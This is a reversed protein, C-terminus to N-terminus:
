SILGRTRETISSEFIEDKRIRLKELFDWISNDEVPWSGEAFLDFDLVFAITGPVVAPILAQNIILAGGLDPQPIQLQMLAGNVSQFQKEPFEPYITLYDKLNVSPGPFDFRNIFRVAIRNVGIPRTKSKFDDWTRRAEQLFPEWRDYPALRSVAFGDLRAQVISAADAGIWRFGNQRSASQAQPVPGLAFRLQNEFLDQVGPYDTSFSFHAAKLDALELDPRANVRLDIVAETIPAKSYVRQSVV